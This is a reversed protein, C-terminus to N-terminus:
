QKGKRRLERRRQRAAAAIARRRADSAAPWASIEELTRGCGRCVGALTVRCVGICPSAVAV